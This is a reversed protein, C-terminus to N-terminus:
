MEHLLDLASNIKKVRGEKINKSSEAIQGMTEPNGLIEISDALAQLDEKTAMSKEIRKLEEFIRNTSISEAM